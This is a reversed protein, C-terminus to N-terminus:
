HLEGFVFEKTRYNFLIPKSQSLWNKHKGAIVFDDPLWKKFYERDNEYLSFITGNDLFLISKKLELFAIWHSKKDYAAPPSVLSVKLEKKSSVEVFKCYAESNFWSEDAVFVLPKQMLQDTKIQPNLVQWVSGDEIMIQHEANWTLINHEESICFAQIALFSVALFSKM